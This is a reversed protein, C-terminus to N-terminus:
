DDVKSILDNIMLMILDNYNGSERYEFIVKSNTFYNNSLAEINDVERM